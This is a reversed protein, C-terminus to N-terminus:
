DSCLKIVSSEGLEFCKEVLVMVKWNKYQPDVVEGSLSWNLGRISDLPTRVCPGTAQFGCKAM